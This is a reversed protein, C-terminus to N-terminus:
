STWRVGRGRLLAELTAQDTFQEAQYGARRAAAVNDMRDDIFLSRGPEVGACAAVLAFAHPHPKVAGIQHSLYAELGRLRGHSLRDVQAWHVQNTNSFLIVRYHRALQEVLGLMADDISLHSSWQRAFVDWDGNYGLEDVLHQHLAPVGLEGTGYRQDDLSGARILDLADPASCRAALRAYLAENDHPVIVGGVDFVLAQLPEDTPTM